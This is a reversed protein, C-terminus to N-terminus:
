LLTNKRLYGEVVEETKKSDQIDECTKLSTNDRIVKIEQHETLFREIRDHAKKGSGGYIDSCAMNFSHNLYVQELVDDRFFLGCYVYYHKSSVHHPDYDNGELVLVHVNCGDRLSRVIAYILLVISYPDTNEVTTFEIPRGSLGPMRRTNMRKLDFSGYKSQVDNKLREVYEETFGGIVRYYIYKPFEPGKPVVEIRKEVHLIKLCKYFTPRSMPDLGKESISDTMYKAMVVSRCPGRKIFEYLDDIDAKRKLSVLYYTLVDYKDKCIRQMISEQMNKLGLTRNM